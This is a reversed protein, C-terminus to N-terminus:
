FRIKAGVLFPAVVESMAVPEIEGDVGVHREGDHRLLRSQDDGIGVAAFDQTLRRRVGDRRRGPAGDALARFTPEIFGTLQEITPTRFHPATDRIFDIWVQGAATVEDAPPPPAAPAVERDRPRGLLRDVM